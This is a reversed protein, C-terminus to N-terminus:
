FVMNEVLKITTKAIEEMLEKEFHRQLLLNGETDYIYIDIAM